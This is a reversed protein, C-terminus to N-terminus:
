KYMQIQIAGPGRDTLTSKLPRHYNYYFEIDIDAKEWLKVAFQERCPFEEPRRILKRMSEDTNTMNENAHQTM